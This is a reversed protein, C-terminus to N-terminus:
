AEALNKKNRYKLQYERHADKCLDCRCKHYSYGNKTGHPINSSGRRQKAYFRSSCPKSCFIRKAGKAKPDQGKRVEFYSGCEPCEFSLMTKPKAHSKSHESWEMIELNDIHNDTKVHNKHHVVEDDRLERGLHKAMVDRHQLVHKKNGEDDIDMFYNYGTGKHFYPGYRKM